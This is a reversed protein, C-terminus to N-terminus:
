SRLEALAKALRAARTEPKKAGTLGVAVQNQKTYSWSKWTAAASTDAALADALDQPVDVTRVAHDLVIDLDYERGPEIDADRRRDQSMGLWYEDGMRAISSRYTFGSVTVAVKPRKGGGLAEVAEDPIRFGATNGGTSVLETRLKM